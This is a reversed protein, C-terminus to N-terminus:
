KYVCMNTLIKRFYTINYILFLQVMNDIYNILFESFIYSVLKYIIRANSKNYMIMEKHHIRTGVYRNKQDLRYM